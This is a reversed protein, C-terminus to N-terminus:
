MYQQDFRIGILPLPTIIDQFFQQKFYILQSVKFAIPFSYMSWGKWSAQKVHGMKM